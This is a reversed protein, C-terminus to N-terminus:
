RTVVGVDQAERIGVEMDCPAIELDTHEWRPDEVSHLDLGVFGDATEVFVGEVWAAVRRGSSTRSAVLAREFIWSPTRLGHPGAAAERRAGQVCVGIYETGEFALPSVDGIRTGVGLRLAAFREGAEPDVLRRMAADDLLLREPHGGAIADYMRQGIARLTEPAPPGDGRIDSPERVDATEDAGGGCALAGLAIVIVIVFTFGGGTRYPPHTV